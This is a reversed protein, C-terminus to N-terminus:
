QRGISHGHMGKGTGLLNKAKRQDSTEGGRRYKRANEAWAYMYIYRNSGPILRGPVATFTERHSATQQPAKGRRTEDRTFSRNSTMFLPVASGSREASSPEMRDRRCAHNLTPKRSSRLIVNSPEPPARRSFIVRYTPRSTPPAHPCFRVPQM